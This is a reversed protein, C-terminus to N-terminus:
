VHNVLTRNIIDFFTQHLYSILLIDYVYKRVFKGRFASQIKIIQELIKENKEKRERWWEQIIKAEKERYKPNILNYGRGTERAKKIKFKTRKRIKEQALDVVGGDRGCRIRRFMLRDETNPGNISLMALAVYYFKKKRIHITKKGQFKTDILTHRDFKYSINKNRALLIKSLKNM